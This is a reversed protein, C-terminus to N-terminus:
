WHQKRLFLNSHIAIPGKFQEGMAMDDRGKTELSLRQKITNPSLFFLKLVTKFNQAIRGCFMQTISIQMSKHTNIMKFIM